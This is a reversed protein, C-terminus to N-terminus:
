RGYWYSPCGGDPSAWSVGISMPPPPYAFGTPAPAVFHNELSWWSAGNGYGFDAVMAGNNPWYLYWPGPIRGPCSLCSFPGGQWPHGCCGGCHAYTCVKNAMCALTSCIPGGGGCCGGGCCQAAARQPAALFPLALLAALIFKKM